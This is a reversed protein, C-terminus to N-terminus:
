FIVAVAASGSRCSSLFIESRLSMLQYNLHATARTSRVEEWSSSYHHILSETRTQLEYQFTGGDGAGCRPEALRINQGRNGVNSLGRGEKKAEVIFRQSLQLNKTDRLYNIVMQCHHSVAM